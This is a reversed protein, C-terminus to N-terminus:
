KSLITNARDIRKRVAKTHSTSHTVAESFEEDNKLELIKNGQIEKINLTNAKYADEASAVFVGDFLAVNFKGTKSEFVSKHISTCANLFAEFLEKFYQIKGESFEMAKKAYQNIFSNMSGKYQSHDCLLAFSRLLVEIDGSRKDEEVKGWIRRWQPSANIEGLMRYFESSYLCARIEQANLNVGGTNLRSFIEFISGDDDQPSNQRIAMCRITMFEFSAKYEGLASYRLGNLPHPVEADPLAIKLKFDQFYEDDSIIAEPISGNDDFIKRLEARKNKLPFRQNIFYYITLLRQQGDIVLFKNREKQYLFIQPIPLGLVLSEIFKSARKQDWIYNRQFYPMEIGGTKILNFITNINFDNPIISIDYLTIAENITNRKRNLETAM